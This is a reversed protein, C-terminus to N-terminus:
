TQPQNSKKLYNRVAGFARKPKSVDGGGAQAFDPRGGGGKGGLAESARRVIDVASIKNVLDDTVGAAILAKGEVDSILLVVGSGIDKKYKDIFKRLDSSNIKLLAQTVFEMDNIKEIKPPKVKKNMADTQYNKVAQHLAKIEEMKSFARLPLDDTIPVGLVKAVGALSDTQARIYDLAARGTLGEIRRVGASSASQGTLIFLGIDGTRKVHTGGCLELSYTKKDMGKDSNDQRGMAVVRVEEGYKEGFLAQAGLARADDVAMIRTDVPTNQRIYDNVESEVRTMQAADLPQTHSFDFRLRTADNLSGRQAVHDGLCQRLAEHLLHTASHNARIAGRRANDVTLTASDNIAFEGTKVKGRHIILGARKVTDTIEASGNETKIQGTDGVQGGSEAYFPTQNVVIDIADGKQATKCPKG